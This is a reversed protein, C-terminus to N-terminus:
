VKLRSDLENASISKQHRARRKLQIHPLLLGCAQLFSLQRLCIDRLEQTLILTKPGNIQKQWLCHMKLEKNM